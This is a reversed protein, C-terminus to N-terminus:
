CEAIICRRPANLAGLGAFERDADISTVKIVYSCLALECSRGVRAGYSASIVYFDVFHVDLADGHLVDLLSPIVPLDFYRCFVPRPIRNQRDRLM